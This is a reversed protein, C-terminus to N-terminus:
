YAPCEGEEAPRIDRREIAGVWYREAALAGDATKPTHLTCAGALAIAFWAPM